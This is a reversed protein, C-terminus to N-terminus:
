VNVKLAEDPYFRKVFATPEASRGDIINLLAVDIPTADFQGEAGIDAALVEIHSIADEADQFILLCAAGLPDQLGLGNCAHSDFHCYRGESCKLFATCKDGWRLVFSNDPRSQIASKLLTRIDDKYIADHRHGISAKVYRGDIGCTLVDPIEDLDMMSENRLHPWGLNELNEKHAEDGQRLIGNIDDVTWDNVPKLYSAIVAM